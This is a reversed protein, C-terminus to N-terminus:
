PGRADGSRKYQGILQNLDRAVAGLSKMTLQMDTEYKTLRREIVDSRAYKTHMEERTDTIRDSHDDIKDLVKNFRKDNAEFQQSHQEFRQANRKANQAIHWTFVTILIFCITGIVTMAAIWDM